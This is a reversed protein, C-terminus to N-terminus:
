QKGRWVRVTFKRGCKPCRSTHKGKVRRLRLKTGCFPCNKFFYDPDGYKQGFREKKQMLFPLVRGRARLYRENELTRRYTDRSFIRLLAIVYIATNLLWFVFYAKRFPTWRLVASLLWFVISLGFLFRGLQDFGYREAMFARFKLLLNQM